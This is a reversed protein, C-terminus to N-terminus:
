SHVGLSRRAEPLQVPPQGFGNALSRSVYIPTKLCIGSVWTEVKMAQHGVRFEPGHADCPIVARDAEDLTIRDCPEPDAIVLGEIAFERRLNGTM